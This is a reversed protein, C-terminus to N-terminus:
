KMHGFSPGMKTLEKEIQFTGFFPAQSHKLFPNFRFNRLVEVPPIILFEPSWTTSLKGSDGGVQLHIKLNFLIEIYFINGTEATV